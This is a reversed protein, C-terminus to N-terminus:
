FVWLRLTQQIDGGVNWIAKLVLAAKLDPVSNFYGWQQTWRENIWETEKQTGVSDVSMVPVTVSPKANTLDSNITNNINLNTTM